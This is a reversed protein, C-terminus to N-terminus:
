RPEVGIRTRTAVLLVVAGLGLVGLLVVSRAAGPGFQATTLSRVAAYVVPDGGLGGRPACWTM